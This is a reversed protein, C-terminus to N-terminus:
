ETHEKVLMANMAIITVLPKRRYVTSIYKHQPTSPQYRYNALFAAEIALNMVGKRFEGSDKLVKHKLRKLAYTRNPEGKGSGLPFDDPQILPHFAPPTTRFCTATVACKSWPEAVAKSIVSSPVVVTSEEEEHRPQSPSRLSSSSSATQSQITMSSM